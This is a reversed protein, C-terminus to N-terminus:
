IKKKNQSITISLEQKMYFNGNVAVQQLYIKNNASFSFPAFDEKNAELNKKREQRNM